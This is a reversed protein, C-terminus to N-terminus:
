PRPTPRVTQRLLSAPDTASNIAAVAAEVDDWGSLMRAAAQADPGDGFRTRILALLVREGGQVRGQAQGQEWGQAQGQEWGQAQGQAQGQALAQERSERVLEQAWDEDRFREVYPHVDMVHERRIRRITSRELHIEALSQAVLLWDWALPHGCGSLLRIAAGLAKERMTRSGRALVAFPALFPDALYEGPEHERLYILRLELSFGHTAPDDHGTVRGDALVIVHQTLRRGPYRRALRGRYDYMRGVMGPGPSTEYEVHMLRDSSVGIVLDPHILPANLFPENLASPQIVFAQGPLGSVSPDLWAAVGAVNSEAWSRMAADYLHFLEKPSDNADAV